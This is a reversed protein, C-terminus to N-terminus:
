EHGMGRLQGLLKHVEELFVAARDERRQRTASGPPKLTAGLRAKARSARSQLCALLAAHKNDSPLSALSLFPRCLSAARGTRCVEPMERSASDAGLLGVAQAMARHGEGFTMRSWAIAPVPASPM